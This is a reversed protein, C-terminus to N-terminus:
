SAVAGRVHRRRTAVAMLGGASMLLIAGAAGIGADGWDFSSSTSTSTATSASPGSASSNIAVRAPAPAIAGTTPLTAVVAKVPPMVPVSTAGGGIPMAYAASPFGATAIVALAALWRKIQAQKFVRDGKPLYDSLV